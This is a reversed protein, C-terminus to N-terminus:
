PVGRVCLRCSLSPGARCTGLEGPVCRHCWWRGVGRRPPQAAPCSAAHADANGPPRASCVSSPRAARVAVGRRAGEEPQQPPECAGRGDGARGGGAWGGPLSGLPAQRRDGKVSGPFESRSGLKGLCLVTEWRQGHVATFPPPRPPPPSAPEAEASSGPTRGEGAGAPVLLRVDRERASSTLLPCVRAVRPASSGGPGHARFAHSARPRSLRAEPRSDCAVRM